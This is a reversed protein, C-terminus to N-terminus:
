VIKDPFTTPLKDKVVIPPFKPLETTEVVLVGNRFREIALKLNVQSTPYLQDLIAVGKPGAAGIGRVIVAADYWGSYRVARNKLIELSGDTGMRALIESVVWSSRDDRALEPRLWPMVDSPNRALLKIALNRNEYGTQDNIAARILATWNKAKELEYFSIARQVNRLPSYYQSAYERTWKNKTMFQQIYVESRASVYAKLDDLQGAEAYIEVVRPHDAKLLPISAESYRGLYDLMIAEYLLYRQEFSGMCTGCWSKFRYKERTLRYAALANEYDGKAFYSNGIEWQARSSYNRYTEMINGGAERDDAGISFIQKFYDIAADHQGLKQLTMGLNFVVKARTPPDTTRDLLAKYADRANQYKGEAYLKNIEDLGVPIQAHFSTTISFALLTSVAFLLTRRM